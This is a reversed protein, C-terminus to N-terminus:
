QRGVTESDVRKIAPPNWGGTLAESKPAYLRMTLNFPGKPAPLWNAERDGGPNDNQIYLTLAGDADRKFPMWSSVAFRNLPNGVQFGDNDYLTVSWFAEVPPAADRVFRVIYKSAGDLPKGNEDGISLPYIADEPLNAGLGVQAVIARKLYYNGYVGMTDTNMSWNNAVRALTPVKWAMLKQAGAPADEIAKRVTADVKAIDFSKGPALGIRAMRAVIPEDTIHPPHIKTLEAAYAFFKDGAMTDVQQKPPTKVDVDPDITQTVAVPPKGWASLPTIKYGKQVEHVAAYDAPGDTKTRGIIWVYPTPADIRKFEAPVSGNWGPPVVLFDTAKTGTTRWGPSAFVDTWMDLMPMLYFRGGTDPVSVVMPERTLDLWASSYLTDFNPRVVAKADAAPYAQVNDFTNPPGGFGASKPDSNVLQKRTLDMTVLPYFYIYAEAAIAHAEEASISQATSTASTSLTLILGSLIAALSSVHKQM